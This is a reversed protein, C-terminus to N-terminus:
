TPIKARTRPPAWASIEVEVVLPDDAAIQSVTKTKIESENSPIKTLGIANRREPNVITRKIATINERLFGM